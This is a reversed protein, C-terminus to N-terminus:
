VTSEYSENSNPYQGSFRMLEAVTMRFTRAFVGINSLSINREGREIMGIYTRHFGTKEALQEQSLGQATRLHRIRRGFADLLAQDKMQPDFSYTNYAAILLCNTAIDPAQPQPRSGSRYLRGRPPRGRCCKPCYPVAQDKRLATNVPTKAIDPPRRPPEKPVFVANKPCKLAMKPRKKARFSGIKLWFHGM